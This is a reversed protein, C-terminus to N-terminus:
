SITLGKRRKRVIRIGLIAGGCIGIGSVFFPAIFILLGTLIARLTETENYDPIELALVSYITLLVLLLIFGPISGIAAAFFYASTHRYKQVFVLTTGAILLIGLFLIYAPLIFFYPM